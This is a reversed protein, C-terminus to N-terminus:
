MNEKQKFAFYFTIFILAEYITAVIYIANVTDNVSWIFNNNLSNEFEYWVDETLYYKKIFNSYVKPSSGVFKQDNIIIGAFMNEAICYCLKGAQYTCATQGYVSLIKSNVYENSKILELEKESLNMYNLLDDFTTASTKAYEQLNDIM